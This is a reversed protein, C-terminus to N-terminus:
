TLRRSPQIGSVLLVRSSRPAIATM